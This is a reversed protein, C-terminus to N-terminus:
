EFLEKGLSVLGPAVKMKDSYGFGQSNCLRKKHEKDQRANFNRFKKNLRKCRIECKKRTRIKGEGIGNVSVIWGRPIHMPSAFKKRM